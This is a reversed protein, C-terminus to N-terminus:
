PETAVIAEIWEEFNMGDSRISATIPYSGPPGAAALRVTLRGVEGPGLTISQSSQELELAPVISKASVV